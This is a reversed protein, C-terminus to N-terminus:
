MELDSNWASMGGIAAYSARKEEEDSDSSGSSEMEGDVIKMAAVTAESKAAEFVKDLVKDVRRRKAASKKPDDHCICRQRKAPAAAPKPNWEELMEKFYENDKLSEFDVKPKIGNLDIHNRTQDFDESKLESESCYVAIHLADLSTCVGEGWSEVLNGNVMPLLKKGGYEGNIWHCFEKYVHELVIENTCYLEIIKIDKEDAVKEEKKKAEVVPKAPKAPKATPKGGMMAHLKPNTRSFADLQEKDWGSQKVHVDIHEGDKVHERNDGAFINISKPDSAKRYDSALALVIVDIEPPSRFPYHKKLTKLLQVKALSATTGYLSSICIKPM